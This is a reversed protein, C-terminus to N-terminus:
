HHQWISHTIPILSIQILYIRLFWIIFECNVIPLSKFHSKLIFTNFIVYMVYAETYLLFSLFLHGGFKLLQWELSHTKAIPLINNKNQVRPSIDKFNIQCWANKKFELLHFFILLILFNVRYNNHYQFLHQANQKVKYSKTKYAPIFMKYLQAVSENSFINVVM